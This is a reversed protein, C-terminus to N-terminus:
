HNWFFHNNDEVMDGGLRIDRAYADYDFYCRLHEPIEDLGGTEDLIDEALQRWSDYYGRYREQFDDKDLSDFCAMYADVADKDFEDYAEILEWVDESVHSEGILSRPIDEWDQFMFEPDDEDKHLEACARYLEDRDSYDELDLWKGFLSGANYKAYTGVYIRM